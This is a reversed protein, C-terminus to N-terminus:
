PMEGESTPTAAPLPDLRTGGGVRLREAEITVRIPRTEGVVVRQTHGAQPDSTLQVSYADEAGPTGTSILLQGNAAVPNASLAIVVAVDARQVIVGGGPATAGALFTLRLNDTTVQAADTVITYAVARDRCIREVAAWTPDAGPVGVVVVASPLTRELAELLGPAAGDAAPAVLTNIAPEWPRTLRGLASRAASRDRTNVILVRADGDALLTSLQNGTALVRLEPEHPATRAIAYLPAGCVLVAALIGVCAPGYRRAREGLWQEISRM